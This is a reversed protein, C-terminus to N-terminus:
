HSEKGTRKKWNLKQAFNLVATTNVQQASRPLTCRPVLPNYEPELAHWLAQRLYDVYSQTVGYMGKLTYRQTESM